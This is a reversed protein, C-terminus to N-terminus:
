FIDAPLHFENMDDSELQFNLGEIEYKYGINTSMSLLKTKLKEAHPNQICVYKLSKMENLIECDIAKNFDPLSYGIIVLHTTESAIQKSYKLSQEKIHNNEFAFSISNRNSTSNITNTYLNQEVLNIFKNYQNPDSIDCGCWHTYNNDPLRRYFGACGNLHVLKFLKPNSNRNILDPNLLEYGPYTYYKEAVKWIDIKDISAIAEAIQLDYNWTIFSVNEKLKFRNALGDQVKMLLNKYRYDLNNRGAAISFYSWLLNKINYFMESDYQHIKALTDISKEQSALEVVNKFRTEFSQLYTQTIADKPFEKGKSTLDRLVSMLDDDLPLANKSAGAGILYTLHSM